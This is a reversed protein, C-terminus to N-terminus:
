LSPFIERRNWLWDYDLESVGCCLNLLSTLRTCGSCILTSYFIYVNKNESHLFFQSVSYFHCESQFKLLLFFIFKQPLMTFNEKPAKTWSNEMTQTQKSHCSPNRELSLYDFSIIDVSKCPLTRSIWYKQM